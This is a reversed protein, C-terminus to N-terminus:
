IDTLCEGTSQKLITKKKSGDKHLPAVESNKWATPFERKNLCTQYLVLLSESLATAKKLFLNGINDPGRDKGIALADLCNLIKNETVSIKNSASPPPEELKTIQWSLNLVSSFFKNLLKAKSFAEEADEDSSFM